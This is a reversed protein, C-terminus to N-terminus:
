REHRRLLHARDHDEMALPPPAAHAGATADGHPAPERVSFRKHRLQFEQIFETTILEGLWMLVVFDLQTFGLQIRFLWSSWQVTVWIRRIMRAEFHSEHLTLQQHNQVDSTVWAGIINNNVTGVVTDVLAYLALGVWAGWTDVAYSFFKLHGGPGVRAYTALFGLGAFTSTSVVAWLLSLLAVALPSYIGGLRHMMRPVFGLWGHPPRAVTAVTPRGPAFPLWPVPERQAEGFRPDALVDPPLVRFRHAYASPPLEFAGWTDTM